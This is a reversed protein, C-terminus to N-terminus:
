EESKQSQKTIIGAVLGGLAGGLGLFFITPVSHIINLGKFMGMTMGAVAIGLAMDVWAAGPKNTIAGCFHNLGWGLSITVLGALWGGMWGYQQALGGWVAFVLIGAVMAGFLTGLHKM